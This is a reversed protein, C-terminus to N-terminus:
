AERPRPQGGPLALGIAACSAEFRHLHDALRFVRGHRIRIGEFVGDGYLLGHDLVSVKADALDVLAGDMWVKMDSM